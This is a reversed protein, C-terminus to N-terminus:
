LSLIVKRGDVIADCWNAMDFAAKAAPKSRGSGTLTGRSSIVLKWARRWATEVSHEAAFMWTQGYVGNSTEWVIALHYRFYCHLRQIRDYTLWEAARNVASPFYRFAYEDEKELVEWAVEVVAFLSGDEM